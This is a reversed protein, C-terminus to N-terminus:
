NNKSDHSKMLQTAVACIYTQLALFRQREQPIAASVVVAIEKKTAIKEALSRLDNPYLPEVEEAGITPAFDALLIPSSDFKLTHMLPIKLPISRMVNADQLYMRGDLSEEHPICFAGHKENTLLEKFGLYATCNRALLVIQEDQYKRTAIPQRNRLGIAFSLNLYERLLSENPANENGSYIDDRLEIWKQKLEKEEKTTMFPIRENKKTGYYGGIIAGLLAVSISGIYAGATALESQLLHCTPQLLAFISGLSYFATLKADQLTQIPPPVPKERHKTSAYSYGLAYGAIGSYITCSLARVSDDLNM